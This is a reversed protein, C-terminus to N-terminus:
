ADDDRWLHGEENWKAKIKDMSWGRWKHLTIFRQYPDNKKPELKKTPKKWALITLIQYDTLNAIQNISMSYPM